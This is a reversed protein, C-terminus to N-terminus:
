TIRGSYLVMNGLNGFVHVMAHLITTKWPDERYVVALPSFLIGISTLIYYETQYESGFARFVQYWLACQVYVIDLYRRWSYDPNRWYNISTLWVGYPVVALDTYGRLVAFTGSVWSLWSVCWLTYACEEPLIM